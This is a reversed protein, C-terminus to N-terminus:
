VGIHFIKPTLFLYNFFFDKFLNSELTKSVFILKEVSNQCRIYLLLVCKLINKPGHLIDIKQSNGSSRWSICFCNFQREFFFFTSKSGWYKGWCGSGTKNAWCINLLRRFNLFFFFDAIQDPQSLQCCTGSPRAKWKQFLGPCTVGLFSKERVALVRCGAITQVHLSSLM